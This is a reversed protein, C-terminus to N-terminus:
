APLLVNFVTGTVGNADEHKVQIVGGHREVIGKSAWLGLGYGDGDKTTFFPEFLRGRNATVIGPGNDRISLTLAHADTGSSCSLQAGITGGFPVADVANSVLHSIAQKLEGPIGSVAPCIHFDRIITINKSGFKSSFGELV